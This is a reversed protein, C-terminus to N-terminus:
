KNSGKRYARRLTAQERKILNQYDPDAHLRAVSAAAKARAIAMPDAEVNTRWQIKGNVWVFWALSGLRDAEEKTINRFV